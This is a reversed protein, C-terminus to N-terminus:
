QPPCVGRGGPSGTPDGSELNNHQWELGILGGQGCQQASKVKQVIQMQCHYARQRLNSLWLDSIMYPHVNWSGEWGCAGPM